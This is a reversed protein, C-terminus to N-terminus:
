GQSGTKTEQSSENSTVSTRKEIVTKETIKLDLKEIKEGLQDLNDLREILKELRDINDRVIEKM